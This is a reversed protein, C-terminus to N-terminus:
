VRMQWHDAYDWLHFIFHSSSLNMFTADYEEKGRPILIFDRGWADQKM